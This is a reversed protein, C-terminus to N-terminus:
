NARELLDQRGAQFFQDIDHPDASGKPLISLSVTKITPPASGDTVLVSFVDNGSFGADPEYRFSGDAALEITGHTPADLLMHQIRRKSATKPQTVSQPNRQRGAAM